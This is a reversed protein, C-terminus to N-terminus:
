SKTLKKNNFINPKLIPTKNFIKKFIEPHRTLYHHFAKKQVQLHFTDPPLIVGIV